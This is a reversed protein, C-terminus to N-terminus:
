EAGFRRVNGVLFNLATRLLSDLTCNIHTNWGAVPCRQLFQVTERELALWEPWQQSDFRMLACSNLTELPV